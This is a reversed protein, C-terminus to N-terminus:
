DTNTLYSYKGFWTYIYKVKSLLNCHASYSEIAIFFDVVANKAVFSILGNKAGVASGV